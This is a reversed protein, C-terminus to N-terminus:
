KSQSASEKARIAVRTAHLEEELSHPLPTGDLISDVLRDFDTPPSPLVPVAGLDESGRVWRTRTGGDVSELLGDTGFIRLTENGWRGFGLPNLYNAIASAVGGGDLRMMLAAAVQLGGGEVPNGLSTEVAQVTAIRAGAVQEVMRVAHIAVQLILGGDVDEDQPRGAHMPYSKQAFVQVVTGIAGERVLRTMSLYPEEFITGSMEHFLVGYRAAAEQIEDLERETFACPKEALVHRGSRLCRLAESAQTVRRPSCLSVLQVREDHLLAELGSYVSVDGYGSLAEKAWDPPMGAVAALLARPHFKLESTIQHGNSGYLGIGLKMAGGKSRDVSRIAISEM